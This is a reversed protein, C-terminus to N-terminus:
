VFIPLRMFLHARLALSVALRFIAIACIFAILSMTRMSVNTPQPVGTLYLGGDSGTREHPTVRDARPSSVIQQQISSSPRCQRYSYIFLAHGATIESRALKPM